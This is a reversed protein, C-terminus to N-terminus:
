KALRRVAASMPTSLTGRTVWYIATADQALGDAGDQGPAIVEPPNACGSHPCRHVAADTSFYVYNSDAILGSVGVPAFIPPPSTGVGNPLPLRYVRGAYVTGVTTSGSFYVASPGVAINSLDGRLGQILPVVTGGGIPMKLVQGDGNQQDTTYTSSNVWYLNTADSALRQPNSPAGAVRTAAGGTLAVSYLGGNSTNYPAREAFYIRSIGSAVVIGGGTTGTSTAYNTPGGTCAPAVCSRLSGSFTWYIRGGAVTLGEGTEGTAIPGISGSGDVRINQVSSTTQSTAGRGWYVHTADVAIDRGNHQSTALTVPQCVGLECGGGLCSHGCRGCHRGDTMFNVCSGQCATAPPMCNPGADVGATGSAGNTGATGGTGATGSTGNTGAAGATGSAGNTGAMGATGVAGASGDSGDMGGTAGAGSSGSVGSTGGEGSAGSSGSAGVSGDRGASGGRGGPSGTGANGGANSFTRDESSGCAAALFLAALTSASVLGLVSRRM